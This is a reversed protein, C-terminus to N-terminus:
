CDGWSCTKQIGCGMNTPCMNVPFRSCNPQVPVGSCKSWGCPTVKEVRGGVTVQFSHYDCEIESTITVCVSQCTNDVWSCYPSLCNAESSVNMCNSDLAPGYHICGPTSACGPIAGCNDGTKSRCSINGACVSSSSGCGNLGTLALVLTALCRSVVSDSLPLSMRLSTRVMM